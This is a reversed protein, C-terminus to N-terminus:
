VRFISQAEAHGATHAAPGSPLKRRFPRRDSPMGVSSCSFQKAFRRVKIVAAMVPGAAKAVPVKGLAEQAERRLALGKGDARVLEAAIAAIDVSVAEEVESAAATPASTSETTGASAAAAAAAAAAEAAEASLRSADAAAVASAVFTQVDSPLSTLALANKPVKSLEEVVHRIRTGSESTSTVGPRAVAASLGSGVEADSVLPLPKGSRLLNLLLAVQKRDGSKAQSLAYDVVLRAIDGSLEPTRIATISALANKDRNKSTDTLYTDLAAILKKTMTARAVELGLAAAKAVSDDVAAPAEAPAEPKETSHANASKKVEPKGIFDSLEKQGGIHPPPAASSRMGSSVGGGGPGSGDRREGMRSFADPMAARGGGGGYRGNSTDYGGQGGDERDRRNGMMSFAAPMERADGSGGPFGGERRGGQFAAPLPPREGGDGGPFRGGGQFAAPLPAGGGFSPPGRFGGGDDASPALGRFRERDVEVPPEAPGAGRLPGGLFERREEPPLMDPPPAGFRGERPPGDRFGGGDRPPGDRFGGGDRPPGDRFGGGDRPPGDRFGGGDRPPGDRFGGGDRPPGDRFGGGGGGFRHGGERPPGDFQRGDRPPGDFRGSGEFRGGGFRPPDRPGDGGARDSDSPRQEYGGRQQQHFGGGGRSHQRDEAPYPVPGRKSDPGPVSDAARRSPPM